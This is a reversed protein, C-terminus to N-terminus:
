TAVTVEPEHGNVSVIGAVAFPVNPDAIESRNRGSRKALYLAADALRELRELTSAHEPYSAVGLSATITVDVGPLTIDAIATRVRQAIEYGSAVDTDPLILCFEEGGNRGAFDGARLAVKLAAGVHALVQDGVAHGRQDNIQKFHDLDLLVLTLPSGIRSAQAFMRKLTDTAARKNPLGTLGDTAARIEAVALNRLNALVPAAQSVSERVRHDEADAYPSARNLLVSGIVEGGVTLPACFSHGPCVACVACALLGARGADENHSRGSRVALCSRPEAGRLSEVLPSDSPLPTVAELRDASNNRNLVVASSGPLMRELHRQLLQHAEEEDGAIQLTDAFEIQDQEPEVARRVRRVGAVGLVAAAVLGLGAAAAILWITLAGTGSAQAESVDAHQQEATILQDVHNALPQYSAALRNAIAVRSGTLALSPSLLDRVSTWQRLLLSIDKREAAPDRAHLRQLASMQSDVQPILRAYLDAEMRSRQGSNSSLLAEEGTAYASGVSRGLQGTSTSTLLEDSTVSNGANTASRVGIIGAVGVLAIILAFAVCVVALATTARQSLNRM